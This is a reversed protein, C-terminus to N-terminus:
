GASRLLDGTSIARTPALRFLVLALVGAVLACVAAGTFVTQEQAIGAVKLLRSFESCRSAGDCVDRVSPVDAQEAYYRRLGITTLASIGVLMGVMRSVVVFASALGHVDDDTSALVAANVPALAVGFGLGGIVLPLTAVPSDLSDLGWTAMWLFGTAALVMGGATVVGAPARHTLYGGIVAGVPLAVLFRVLVLAAMLQSGPYVTTRAFLPIDILAAILAAGIFFSVLMAGWAPTRRLAGAPVLPQDTRRLHLVFAVAALAAGVLYWLGQDSFVQVKPDATAFALIVGALALALLVAGLADAERVTRVWDPVDLLPRRATCCRVVLLVFAGIAVLGIPTLWRGDGAYPIFLQGYTLDRMLQSPQVFVLVGAVLAVLALGLGIWDFTRAPPKSAREARVEVVAISRIAAALVLGVVLNVLFIVRWDAVALVLAGFLPGLVSGIEQVASVLGLPVGRRQAPYLDAVLALTAPVLGGGGVGQLFRGTVMSPMDYALATVLSGLAFVLLAAVLVPVRGRLDAIRGILPLMAVYGLLFGSVIPAARQLQDVPIGASAMMDPLALVVVYTDAAAFAVAVAALALLVRPSRTM